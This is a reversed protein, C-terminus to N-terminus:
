KGGKEKLYVIIKAMLDVDDKLRGIGNNCNYCLLGRVKGTTHCHDVHLRKTTHGFYCLGNQETYMDNWKQLAGQWTLEPWYNKVLTMGRIRDAFKKNYEKNRENDHPSNKRWEDREKTSCEKCYSRLGITGNPYTKKYFQQDERVRTCKPCKKM